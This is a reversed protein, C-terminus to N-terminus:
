FSLKGELVTDGLIVVDDSYLPLKIETTYLLILGKTEAKQFRQNLQEIFLLFLRPNPTRGQIVGTNCKFSITIDNTTKVCSYM